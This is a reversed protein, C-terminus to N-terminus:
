KEKCLNGVRVAYDARVAPARDVAFGIAEAGTFGLNWCLAMQEPTPSPIGKTSLRGRLARLLAAAVMDQATQNRWQSRAYTPRGERTLQANGDAWAKPHLQYCGLGAGGDGRALRRMGSEVQGIAELLRRDDQAQATCGLMLLAVVSFRNM